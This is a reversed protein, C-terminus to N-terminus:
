GRRVGGTLWPVCGQVFWHQKPFLLLRSKLCSICAAFCSGEQPYVCLMMLGCCVCSPFPFCGGSCEDSNLFGYKCLPASSVAALASCYFFCTRARASAFHLAWVFFHQAIMRKRSNPNDYFSGEQSHPTIQTAQTHTSLFSTAITHFSFTNKNQWVGKMPRPVRSVM